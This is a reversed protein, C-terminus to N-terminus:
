RFGGGGCQIALWDESIKSTNVNNLKTLARRYQEVVQDLCNACRENGIGKFNTRVGNSVDELDNIIKRLETKIDELQGSGNSGM